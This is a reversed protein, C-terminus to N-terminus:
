VEEEVWEKCKASNKFVFVRVTVTNMPMKTKVLSYDAASTIGLPRLQKSLAEAHHREEKPLDETRSTDDIIVGESVQWGKGLLEAPLKAESVQRLPVMEWIDSSAVDDQVALQTCILITILTNM